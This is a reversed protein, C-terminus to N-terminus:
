LQHGGGADESHVPHTPACGPHTCRCRDPTDIPLCWLSRYSFKSHAVPGVVHVAGSRAQNRHRFQLDIALWLTKLVALVRGADRGAVLVAAILLAPGNVDPYTLFFGGLLTLLLAGFSVVTNIGLDGTWHGEIREFM